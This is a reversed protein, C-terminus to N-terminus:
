SKAKQAPAAKPKALPETAAKVDDSALQAQKLRYLHWDEKAVLEKLAKIVAYSLNTKNSNGLSKSYINHYGTIELIERTVSGAILGTGERAPKLLINAGGVKAMVQHPITTPTSIVVKSMSRKAVSVAKNIASTVDAGKASGVGVLGKGDGLAVLARFRFRRGGKVVRAVRDINLVRQDYPHTTNARPNNRMRMM